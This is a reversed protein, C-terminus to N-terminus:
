LKKRRNIEERLQASEERVFEGMSIEEPYLNSKDIYGITELYRLHAERQADLDNVSAALDLIPIQNALVNLRERNIDRSDRVDPRRKTEDGM